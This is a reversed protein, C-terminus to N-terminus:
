RKYHDYVNKVAKKFPEKRAQKIYHKTFANRTAERDAEAWWKADRPKLGVEQRFGKYSNRFARDALEDIRAKNKDMHLQVNKDRVFDHVKKAGYAALVTGVAAAGIKIARKQKDSLGKKENNDGDSKDDSYRKKGANTLTGDKKQYRRVGWKMGKIGFHYLEDFDYNSM